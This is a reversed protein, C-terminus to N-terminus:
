EIPKLRGIVVYRANDFEYSCTSLTVIIDNEEPAIDSSFSSKRRYDNLLTRFEEETLNYSYIKDNGDLVTGIFLELEYNGEPTLYYLVPHAEYHAKDKYKTLDHFMTGNKMSHGYIIYNYDDGVEENRYDVFLTGSKLYKGDLDAHLYEDNDEGRVVPYNIVTDPCYLWGVVDENRALLASFDVSISPEKKEATAEKEQSAEVKTEVYENQMDSYITDAKEYEYYTKAINGAAVLFIVILVIRIIRLIRRQNM